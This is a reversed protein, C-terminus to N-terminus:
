LERGPPDQLLHRENLWPNLAVAERLVEQAEDNRGLGMLTLAKGALAAVHRPSRDLAAELDTLAAAFDQRIFNVFARQNYGEAYDPCYDVLRDFQDIARLFDYSERAQMGADLLAQAAEDPADAWYEWMQNSLARGEAETPAAQTRAILADLAASHDPAAPCEAFAASATATALVLASLSRSTKM